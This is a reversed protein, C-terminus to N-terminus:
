KDCICVIVKASHQRGAKDEMTYWFSDKGVFRQKLQYVAMGNRMSVQAGLASRSNVGVVRLKQGRDNSLVNIRLKNAQQSVRVRDANAKPYRGSTVAQLRRNRGAIPKAVQLRADASIVRSKAFPQATVSSVSLASIAFVILTLMLPNNKYPMRM